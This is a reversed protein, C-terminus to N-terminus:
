GGGFIGQAILKPLQVLAEKLGVAVLLAVILVIILWWYKRTMTEMADVIRQLKGQTEVHNTILTQAHLVNNDNLTQLNQQMVKLTESTQKQSEALQGLIYMMQPDPKEDSM